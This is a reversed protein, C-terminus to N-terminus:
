SGRLDLLEDLLMPHARAPVQGSRATRNKSVRDLAGRLRAVRALSERLTIECDVLVDDRDVFAVDFGAGCGVSEPHGDRAILLDNGAGSDLSDTTVGGILVDRGDGGVLYWSYSRPLPPPPQQEPEVPGDPRTVFLVDNGTGGDAVSHFDADVQVYGLRLVDNGADGAVSM